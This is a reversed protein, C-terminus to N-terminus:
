SVEKIVNIINQVPNSNVDGFEDEVVKKRKDKLRSPENLEQDIIKELDKDDCWVTGDTKIVEITTYDVGGYNKYSFGEVMVCPIDMAMALLQFTGEENGVVCDMMTLLKTCDDIHSKNHQLSSVMDGIYLRKDHVSTAKTLVRWGKNLIHYPISDATVSDPDIVWSHWMDKLEKSHKRLVDQAKSLEIKKLEWYTIINEPEEHTTIVPVFIINKGDHIERPRLRKILPSGTIIAKDGFGAKQLRDYEKQGWCCYKTAYSKFSNPPLYDRTAGRGHQVVVVPKHLYEDNIKCLELMDGRIDQWLVLVDADRADTVFEFEESKMVDDLVGNFNKIYVKKM